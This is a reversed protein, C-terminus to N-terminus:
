FTNVINQLVSPWVFVAVSLGAGLFCAALGSRVRAANGSMGGLVAMLLGIAGALFCLTLTIFNVAGGVGNILPMLPKVWTGNPKPKPVKFDDAALLRSDSLVRAGMAYYLDKM